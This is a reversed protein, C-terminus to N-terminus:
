AHRVAVVDWSSGDHVWSLQKATYTNKQDVWGSRFQVQYEKGTDKPGREGSVLKFGEAPIPDTPLLTRLRRQRSRKWNM